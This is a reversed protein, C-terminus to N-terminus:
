CRSSFWHGCRGPGVPASLRPPPSSHCSQDDLTGVVLAAPVGGEAAVQAVDGGPGTRLPQAVVAGLRPPIEEPSVAVVDGRRDVDRGVIEPPVGGEVILTVM